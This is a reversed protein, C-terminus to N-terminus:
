KRKSNPNRSRKQLWEMVSTYTSHPATLFDVPDSDDKRRNCQAGLFEPHRPSGHNKILLQHGDYV